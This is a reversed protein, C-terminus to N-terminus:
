KGGPPVHKTLWAFVEKHWFESNKPKLVWHGEDPFNIFKAEVGQRKLATFLERGQGVPCRFDLDNQILLMPTKFKGLNAAKKHPSFKEYSERNKGWPPGGHEFEDFWLEDTTAYMSDFDWVSAHSIITKFKGTNVAFWNMMYGGFSAGAAAMRDKDIYPQKELYDLGAMLDEYCKGGWDGSIEEVYKRGFGTSGRPNPLAVVYGQAAWLEPCWRYSWGDEWAGQPGGHVLFALPWKKNADFGPPKLVWMQMPTGGAGKVTVSEPRPLDLAGLLKDNAHSLQTPEGRGTQFSFLEPPHRLSARLFAVTLGHDTTLGTITGAGYDPWRVPSHDPQTVLATYVATRAKVEATLLLTNNDKNWAFSEVDLEALATLDAPRGRFAGGEDTEVAMLDWKDAEYGARKQARYALRKGDPSFVPGSDAAPNDKTLTEWKATGGTVPVRCIDYNTSWAEDKEPVATFVLYKGDPSFTFNDGTSFTDSTPFADRDGPTVDRPLGLPHLGQAEPAVDMVFLHQRKDEVYSDWHRYFLRTHVKAKVPSKEIEDTRKKNAADSEKFPQGSYEPYVASVFAISKGDRSWVADSAGTSLTTLQRAEGGDLGIVWLQSEGGRNSEFLIHKGDPSWRPHRDKKGPANTLQRPQGKGDAPALWLSAPIKNAEMDVTGVVYVVQKGDPSIQPDSVRKFKFLDEVTMPRKKDAAAAPAAAVLLAVLLLAARKM